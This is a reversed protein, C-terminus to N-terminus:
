SEEESIAPMGPPLEPKVSVSECKPPPRRYIYEEIYTCGVDTSVDCSASCTYVDLTGWDIDENASNLFVATSPLPQGHPESTQEQLAQSPIMTTQKDVHLYHLMQPM